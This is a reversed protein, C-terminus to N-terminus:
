AQKGTDKYTCSGCDCCRVQKRGTVTHYVSRGALLLVIGVITFVAVIEIM